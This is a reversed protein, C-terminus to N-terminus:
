RDSINRIHTLLYRDDMQQQQRRSLDLEYKSLQKDRLNELIKRQQRAKYFVEIQRRRLDELKSLREGLAAIRMKRAQDSALEFQLEVSNMGARLKGQFLHLANARDLRANERENRTRTTERTILDLRLQERRELSLRWRLVAQLSFRFPM